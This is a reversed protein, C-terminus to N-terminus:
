QGKEIQYLARIQMDSTKDESKLLLTKSHWTIQATPQDGAALVEPSLYSSTSGYDPIWGLASSAQCNYSGNTNFLVSDHNPYLLILLQRFALKGCSGHKPQPM